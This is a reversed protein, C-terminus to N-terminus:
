YVDWLLVQYDKTTMTAELPPWVKQHADSAIWKQRLAESEFTLVFRYNIGAGPPQGMMTASLKLMRLDIFGPQKSAIPRFDREFMRLMDAEKAPDVPMDVHLQIPRGANQAKLTALAAAGTLMTTLCTRRNM